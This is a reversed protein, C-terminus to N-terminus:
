LVVATAPRAPRRQAGRIEQLTELRTLRREISVVYSLTASQLALVLGALALSTAPKM